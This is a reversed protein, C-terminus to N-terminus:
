PNASSNNTLVIGPDLVLPLAFGLSGTGLTMARMAMGSLSNVRRMADREPDTWYRDGHRPDRLMSRYASAYNPDSLALALRSAQGQEDPDDFQEALREKADRPVADDSVADLMAHARGISESRMAVEDLGAWPQRNRWIAREETPRDGGVSRAAGAERNRPDAAAREVRQLQQSRVAMHREGILEDLVVIERTAEQYETEQPQSRHAYGKLTEARSALEARRAVLRDLDWDACQGRVRTTFGEFEDPDFLDAM